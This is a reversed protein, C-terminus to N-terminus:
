VDEWAQELSSDDLLRRIYIIEERDQFDRPKSEGRVNAAFLPRKKFLERLITALPYGLNEIGGEYKRVFTMAERRLSLISQFGYRFLTEIHRNILLDTAAAPEGDGLEQLAINIYGSAKRLSKTLDEYLSPDLSDAVIIKNALHALESSIRDRDQSDTLQDLCQRFLSTAPITKLPYALPAADPDDYQPSEVDRPAVPSAALIHRVGSDQYIELAEEFCPFGKEALRARRFHLAAEEFDSSLGCALSEMVTFYYNTDAEYLAELLAKLSDELSPAPFDVYFVDELTYAPLTDSEEVYDVDANRTKVTLFPHLMAVLLEPDLTTLLDQVQDIPLQAFIDLWKAIGDSYLMDKKWFELDACHQLQKTSALSLLQLAEEESLAKTLYYFDEERLERVLAEPRNLSQIVGFFARPSLPGLLRVLRRPSAKNLNRRLLEISAVRQNGGM